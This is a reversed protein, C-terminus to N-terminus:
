FSDPSDMNYPRQKSYRTRYLLVKPQKLAPSENQVFAEAIVAFIGKFEERVFMM